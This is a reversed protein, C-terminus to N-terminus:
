PELRKVMLREDLGEVVFDRLIGVAEFGLREYFVRARPNFESVCLFFHRYRGRFLGEAYAILQQGVGHGRFAEAVAISVLYPAGAVGRERLLALGCREDGAWAIHLTDIPSSCAALCAEYGRRLTIWPDSSSMVTAAWARDEESAVRVTITTMTVGSIILAM